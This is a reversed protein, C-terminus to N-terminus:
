KCDPGYVYNEDAKISGVAGPTELLTPATGCIHNGDTQVSGVGGGVIFLPHAQAAPTQGPQSATDSSAVKEAAAGLRPQQPIFFLALVGVFLSITSSTFWLYKQEFRLFVFRPLIRATIFVLIFAILAVTVIWSWPVPLLSSLFTALLNVPLQIENLSPM